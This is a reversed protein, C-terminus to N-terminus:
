YSIFCGGTLHLAVAKGTPSSLNAWMVRSVATPCKSSKIVKVKVVSHTEMEGVNTMYFDCKLQRAQVKIVTM